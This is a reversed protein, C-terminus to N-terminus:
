PFAIPQGVFPGVLTATCSSITSAQGPTPTVRWVQTDAGLIGNVRAWVAIQGADNTGLVRMEIVRDLCSGFRQDFTVLPVPAATASATDFAFLGAWGSPLTAVTAALGVENVDMTGGAVSQLALLPTGMVQAVRGSQSAGRVLAPGALTTGMGDTQAPMLAFTNYGGYVASWPAENGGRPRTSVATYTAYINPLKILSSPVIVFAGYVEASPVAYDAEILMRGGDRVDIGLATITSQVPPVSKLATTLWGNQIRGRYIGGHSDFATMAFYGGSSLSVHTVGGCPTSAHTCDLVVNPTAGAVGRALALVQGYSIFVISDDNIAVDSGNSAALGLDVANGIPGALLLHNMGSPTDAAFAITGDDAIGVRQRRSETDIGDRRLSAVVEINVQARASATVLGLALVGFVLGSAGRLSNNMFGQLARQTGLGNCVM